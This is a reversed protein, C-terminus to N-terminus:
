LIEWETKGGIDKITVNMKSLEDRINDATQYDGNNKAELRLEILHNIKDEDAKSISLDQSSGEFIYKYTSIEKELEFNEPTNIIEQMVALAKPTNLDDLIAEGIKTDAFFKNMNSYPSTFRKIKKTISVAQNLVNTSWPIPQRYHTSLLALRIDNGKYDKILDDIYVVNGLSKSMKEDALNLFGNHVSRFLM